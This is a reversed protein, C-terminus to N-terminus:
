NKQNNDWAPSNDMKKKQTKTTSCSFMRAVSSGTEITRITYLLMSDVEYSAALRAIERPFPTWGIIEDVICKARSACNVEDQELRRFCEMAPLRCIDARVGDVYDDDDYLLILCVPCFASAATDLQARFYAWCQPSDLNVANLLACWAPKVHALYALMCVAEAEPESDSSWRLRYQKPAHYLKVTTTHALIVQAVFMSSVCSPPHITHLAAESVNIAMLSMEESTPTHTLLMPVHLLRELTASDDSSLKLDYRHQVTDRLWKSLLCSDSRILSIDECITNCMVHSIGCFQKEICANHSCVLMRSEEIIRHTSDLTWTLGYSEISGFVCPSGIICLTIAIGFDSLSNGDLDACVAKIVCAVSGTYTSMAKILMTNLTNLTLVPRNCIWVLLTQTLEDEDYDGSSFASSSIITTM